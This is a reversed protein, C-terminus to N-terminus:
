SIPHLHRCVVGSRLGQWSGEWSSSQQEEEAIPLGDVALTDFAWPGSIGGWFLEKDLGWQARGKLLVVGASARSPLSPFHGWLPALLGNLSPSSWPRSFLAGLHQSPGPIMHTGHSRAPREPHLLPATPFLAHTSCDLKQLQGNLVKSRLLIQANKNLWIGTQQLCPAPRCLATNAM